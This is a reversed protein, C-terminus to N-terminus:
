DSASPGRGHYIDNRHNDIPQFTENEIQLMQRRREEQLRQEIEEETFRSEELEERLELLSNELRRLLEHKQIEKNGRERASSSVPNYNIPRQSANKERQHRYRAGRVHGRNAQVHGSTATGRVSTLGIGNYMIPM